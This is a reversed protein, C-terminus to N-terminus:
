IGKLDLFTIEFSSRTYSLSLLKKYKYHYDILVNISYM